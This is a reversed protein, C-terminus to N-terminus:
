PSRLRNVCSLCNVILILWFINIDALLSVYVLALLFFFGNILFSIVIFDSESMILHSIFIKKNLAIVLGGKARERSAERIAPVKIISMNDLLSPVLPRGKKLWTECLCLIDHQYLHSRLDEINSYGHANWFIIRFKLDSAVPVDRSVFLQCEDGSIKFPNSNKNKIQLPRRHEM